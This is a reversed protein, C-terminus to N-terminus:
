ITLMIRTFHLPLLFSVKSVLKKQKASLLTKPRPRWAFQYFRQKQVRDIVVGHMTWLFYGAESSGRLSQAGGLRQTVISAVTRGSPDWEVRSCMYHEAEMLVEDDDVSYFELRGNHPSGAGLLVAIGGNPQWSLTNCERDTLTFLKDCGKAKTVGHPDYFSVSARTEQTSHVVGFRAGNPEWCFDLVQERIEFTEVPVNRDKMRFIEISTYYSPSSFFLRCSM